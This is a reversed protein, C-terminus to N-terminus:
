RESYVCSLLSLTCTLVRQLRCSGLCVSGGFSTCNLALIHNQGCAAQKIRDGNPFPIITPEYYFNQEDKKTDGPIGGGGTGTASPNAKPYFHEGFGCVYLEGESTIYVTHISGCALATTKKKFNQLPTPHVRDATDGLGLQGHKNAGWAYVEGTSSIAVSHNEGCGIDEFRPAVQNGFFKADRVCFPVKKVQKDLTGLQGFRNTGFVHLRGQDDLCITHGAGCAVKVITSRDACGCCCCM